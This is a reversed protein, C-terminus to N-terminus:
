KRGTGVFSGNDQFLAIGPTDHSSSLWCVNEKGLRSEALYGGKKCNEADMTGVYWKTPISPIQGAYDGSCIVAKSFYEPMQKALILASNAGLSHGMIVINNTDVNHQSIFYDLLNAVSGASWQGRPNFIRPCIVYASFGELGKNSWDDLLAEPLGAGRLGGELDTAGDAGHLWVIAPLVELEEANSPTLLGYAMIGGSEDFYDWTWTIDSDWFSANQLKKIKYGEFMWEFLDSRNNGNM